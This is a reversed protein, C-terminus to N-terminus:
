TKKFLQLRFHFAQSLFQLPVLSELVSSLARTPKIISMVPNDDSITLFRRVSIIFASLLPTTLTKCLCSLFICYSNLKRSRMTCWDQLLSKRQVNHMTSPWDKLANFTQRPFLFLTLNQVKQPENFQKTPRPVLFWLQVSTPM